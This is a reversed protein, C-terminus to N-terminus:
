LSPVCNPIRDLPSIVPEPARISGLRSLPSEQGQLFLDSGGWENALLPVCILVAASFSACSVAARSLPRTRLYLPREESPGSAPILGPGDQGELAM